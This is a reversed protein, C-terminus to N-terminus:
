GSMPKQGMGAIFKKPPLCLNGWTSDVWLWRQVPGNQGYVPFQKRPKKLKSPGEDKFLQKETQWVGHPPNEPSTYFFNRTHSHYPLFIEVM